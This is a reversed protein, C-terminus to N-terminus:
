AWRRPMWAVVASATQIEARLISCFRRAEPRLVWGQYQAPKTPEPLQSYGLGDIRVLFYFYLESSIM